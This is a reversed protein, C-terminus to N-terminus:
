VDQTTKGNSGGTFVIKNSQGSLRPFSLKTTGQKILGNAREV